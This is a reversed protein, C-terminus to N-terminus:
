KLNLTLLNINHQIMGIYTGDKTGAEGMADAYLESIIKLDHGKQACGEVVSVLSKSSTSSEVFVSPINNDIIYDVLDTVDKLGFETVTSIGQLGRVTYGYAAGFYGFADHSTVLVRQSEPVKSLETISIEHLQNLQTLYTDANADFENKLEPFTEGLWATMSRIGDAWLVVDFWIHPDNLTEGDTGAVVRFRSKDIGNAIAYVPKNRAINELVEVMKGELHLGNYVVADASRLAKQDGLSPIYYHPDVGSGMLSKVECTGGTINILADGIIGTTAVIIPPGTRQTEQQNDSSESSACSPILIIGALCILSLLSIQFPFLRRM